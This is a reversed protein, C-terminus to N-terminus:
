AHAHSATSLVSIFPEQTWPLKLISFFLPGLDSWFAILVTFFIHSSPRSPLSPSEAFPIHFCMGKRTDSYDPHCLRPSNRRGQAPIWASWLPQQAPGLIRLLPHELSCLFTGQESALPKGGQLHINLVQHLCWGKSLNPLGVQAAQHVALMRWYWKKNNIHSGELVRIFTEETVSMQLLSSTKAVHKNGATNM